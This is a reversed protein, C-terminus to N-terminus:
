RKFYYRWYNGDIVIEARYEEDLWNMLWENGALELTLDGFGSALIVVDPYKDPNLEWYYLLASNYTPTSMVTPAGVEVDEYLYGLTDVPDGLIWITDGPQIYEEWELMSDRQKAAGEEDTFIGLAPGSRILAMDDVLSCIQARGSIPVHLYVSRFLIVLLFVHVGVVFLKQTSVGAFRAEYWRYLPLVSVVIAVLMYPVAHLFSHDSLLLTAALNSCGIWLATHYARKEEPNLLNRKAFGLILLFLFPYSLGGNNEVRLVNIVLFIMLPYWSFVLRNDRSFATKGSSLKEAAFGIGGAIATVALFKGLDQIHASLKDGTGATHTPELALAKSLCTLLTDLEVQLLLYAVFAGGIAACVGTFVALDTKLHPSYKWLLLLVVFYGVLFSPYSLVGLCLCIASLVLHLRKGGKFYQILTLAMLTAFWLQMNSFEPVLLDKPSLLLYMAGAILAPTTATLSRITKFLWLSIGTRILFGVVHTFLVVGTTTGTVLLWLKMIIACLFASTQHPEWMQAILTDGKLLRYAMALQYEADYSLNTFLLSVCSIAILIGYFVYTKRALHKM